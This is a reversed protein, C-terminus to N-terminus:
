HANVYKLYRCVKDHFRESRQLSIKNNEWTPSVRNHVNLPFLRAKYLIQSYAPQTVSAFSPFQNIQINLPLIYQIELSRSDNVTAAESNSCHKIRNYIDNKDQRTSVSHWVQVVFSPLACKLTIRSNLRKRNPNIHLSFTGLFDTSINIQTNKLNLHLSKWLTIRKFSFGVISSRSNENQSTHLKENLCKKQQQQKHQLKRGFWVRWFYNQKPLAPNKCRLDTTIFLSINKPLTASM